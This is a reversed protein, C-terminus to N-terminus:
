EKSIRRRRIHVSLLSYVSNTVIKIHNFEALIPIIYSCTSSCDIFVTMADHLFPLIKQSLLKKEKSHLLKRETVPLTTENRNYIAGGHYCQIYGHNKMQSLDRRITMESVYLAKALKSVSMKGHQKLIDIIKRQRENM